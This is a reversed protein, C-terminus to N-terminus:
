GEGVGPRGSRLRWHKGLGREDRRTFDEKDGANSYVETCLTDDSQRGLPAALACAPAGPTHHRRPRKSLQQQPALRTSGPPHLWARNSGPMPPALRTSGPPHLWAPPALRTSGPPHLWAPPALCPGTIQPPVELSKLKKPRLKKAGGLRKKRKDMKLETGVGAVGAWAM